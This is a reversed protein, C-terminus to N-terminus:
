NSKDEYHKALVEFAQKREGTESLLGKRNWGNKFVPHERRPSRIDKLIWSSMRRLNPIQGAMELTKRSYQTQYDESFKHTAAPDFYGALADAGFESFILPKDVPVNWQLGPLTDLGNDGYWGAYTNVPMVELKTMLPDAIEIVPHGGVMKREVM